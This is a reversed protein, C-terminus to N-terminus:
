RDRITLQEFTKLDDTAALIDDDKVSFFQRGAITLVDATHRKFLVYDGVRVSMPLQVIEWTRDPRRRRDRKFDAVAVVRGTRREDRKFTDPLALGSREVAPELYELLATGPMPHITM